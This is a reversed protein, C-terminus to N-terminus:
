GALKLSNNSWCCFCNTMARPEGPLSYLFMIFFYAVHMEVLWIILVDPKLLFWFLALALGKLSLFRSFYLLDDIWGEWSIYIHSGFLKPLAIYFNLEDFMFGFYILIGSYLSNGFCNFFIAGWVVFLTKLLIYFNSTGWGFYFANCFLYLAKSLSKSKFCKEDISYGWNCGSVGNSLLFGADLLLSM